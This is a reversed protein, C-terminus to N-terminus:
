EHEYGEIQDLYVQRKRELNEIAKEIRRLAKEAEALESEPGSLVTKIKVPIEGKEEAERREAPDKIKAVKKSFEGGIEESIDMAYVAMIEKAQGYKLSLKRDVIDEFYSLNFSQQCKELLAILAKGFKKLFVTHEKNIAVVQDLFPDEFEKYDGSEIAKELLFHFITRFEGGHANRTTKERNDKFDIHHALEHIATYMLGNEESFNKNHIIIEHKEPNYIGDVKTSHKGSFIVQFDKHETFSDLKIKLQDQNVIGGKHIEEM